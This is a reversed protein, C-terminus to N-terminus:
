EDAADSTYLLCFQYLGDPKCDYLEEDLKYTTHAYLKRGETTKYDIVGIVAVAPTLTFTTILEVEMEDAM